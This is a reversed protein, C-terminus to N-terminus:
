VKAGGDAPGGTEAKTAQLRKWERDVARKATNKNAYLWLLRRPKDQDGATMTKEKGTKDDRYYAIIGTYDLKNEVALDDVTDEPLKSELELSMTYGNDPSLNHQVNGGYWIIEDIEAKVGQLTYTLEPILDPRGVALTYSLTASGRRLRNFEARAARLASQKDSYTHRLDKLNEGGGAIAEQKKASNVDYFYARVGDYSDRDALLYRHQDGDARTLTIHPLDLGSATKGGGAPMCLLCGAKVSAVADFEEGLRSILNADSENAQDLQLIPLGDLAGAITATLGNGIAIDGLVDGLTTNSWSRERKTKLAKRLDASRARISLMDPAGSHEIEDVTYTGKDVLGTDSWGLWLRVVAGKPPISLLGDHDSLTISLQDAEIGRNDTLELSMLRPSILQAIDNGDVTVRFAPVPYAADRKYRDVTDKLFGTVRSLAADIM